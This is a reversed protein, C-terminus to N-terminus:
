SDLCAYNLVTEPSAVVVVLIVNLDADPISYGIGITRFGGASNLCSHSNVTICEIEHFFRVNLPDHAENVFIVPFVEERDSIVKIFVLAEKACYALKFGEASLGVELVLSIREICGTSSLECGEESVKSLLCAQV